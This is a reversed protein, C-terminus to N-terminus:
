TLFFIDLLHYFSNESSSLRKSLFGMLKEMNRVPLFVVNILPYSDKEHCVEVYFTKLRKLQTAGSTREVM